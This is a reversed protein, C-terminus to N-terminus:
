LWPSTAAAYTAPASDSSSAAATMQRRLRKSRAMTPLPSIASTCSSAASACAAARPTRLALQAHRRAVARARRQHRPRRLRHPRHQRLEFPPPHEALPDLDVVSGCARLISASRSPSTADSASSRGRAGVTRIREVTVPDHSSPGSSPRPRVPRGVEALRQPEGVDTSLRHAAFPVPHQHLHTRVRHKQGREFLHAALSSPHHNPRQHSLLGSRADSSADNPCSCAAPM